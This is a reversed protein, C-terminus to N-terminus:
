HVVDSKRSFTLEIERAAAKTAADTQRQFSRGLEIIDLGPDRYKRFYQEDRLKMTAVYNYLTERAVGYARAVRFVPCENGLAFDIAPRYPHGEISSRFAMSRTGFCFLGGSQELPREPNVWVGDPHVLPSIRSGTRYAANRGIGFIFTM